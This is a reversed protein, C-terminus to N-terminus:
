ERLMKSLDSPLEDTLRFRKHCTGCEAFAETCGDEGFWEGLNEPTFGDATFSLDAVGVIVARAKGTGTLDAGCHPCLFKFVFKDEPGEYSDENDNVFPLDAFEEFISM